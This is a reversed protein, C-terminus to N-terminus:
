VRTFQGADIAPAGRANPSPLPKPTQLEHLDLARPPAFSGSDDYNHSARFRRDPFDASDPKWAGDGARYRCIGIAIELFQQRVRDTTRRSFPDLNKTGIHVV